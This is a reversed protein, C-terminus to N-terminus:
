LWNRVTLTAIIATVGMVLVAIEVKGSGCGGGTGRQVLRVHDNQLDVFVQRPDIATQVLADVDAIHVHDYLPGM